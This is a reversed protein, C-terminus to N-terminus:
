LKKQSSRKFKELEETSLSEYNRDLSPMKQVRAKPRGNIANFKMNAVIGVMNPRSQSSANQVNSDEMPALMVSGKRAPFSIQKEDSAVNHTIEIPCNGEEDDSLPLMHQEESPLKDDDESEGAQTTILGGNAVVSSEQMAQDGHSVALFLLSYHHRDAHYERGEKRAEKGIKRTM